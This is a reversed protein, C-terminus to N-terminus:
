APMVAGDGATADDGDDVDADDGAPRPQPRIRDEVLAFVWSIAGLITLSIVFMAWGETTHMFGDAVEPGVFLVLFGTLFIRVGNILVAVPIAIAVLAVRTVPFRLGLGGALVAISILATLSRLGSCAEAVFLDHGPVRIVNGALLVPIERWRLLAAGIASAKFQLPLAVTNLIMDPIPVALALLTAPLWWRLLQRGGWQSVVLGAGALLMSGKLTFQEAALGSAYRVVVAIVLMTIGLRLNPTADERIGDKWALYIALPALLLGHGAEPNSWWDTALWAAPRAFLFAFAVGAVALPLWSPRPATQDSTLSAPLATATM